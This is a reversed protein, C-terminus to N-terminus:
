NMFSRSFELTIVSQQKIHTRVLSSEPIASKFIQDGDAMVLTYFVSGKLAAAVAEDNSSDPLEQAHVMARVVRPPESFPPFDAAANAQKARATATAIAVPDPDEASQAEQLAVTAAEAASCAAARQDPTGFEDDYAATAETLAEQYEEQTLTYDVTQGVDIAFPFEVQRQQPELNGEKEEKEEEDAPPGATEGDTEVDNAEAAARAQEAAQEAARAAAAAAEAEETAITAEEEDAAQQSSLRALQEEKLAEYEDRVLVGAKLDDMGRQLREFPAM